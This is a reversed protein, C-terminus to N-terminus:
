RSSGFPRLRVELRSAPADLLAAGCRAGAVLGAVAESPAHVRGEWLIAPDTGEDAARRTPNLVVVVDYINM